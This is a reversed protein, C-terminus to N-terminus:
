IYEKWEQETFRSLLNSGVVMYQMFIFVYYVTYWGRTDTCFLHVSWLPVM